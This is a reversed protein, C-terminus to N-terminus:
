AHPSNVLWSNVLKGNTSQFCWPNPSQFSPGEQSLDSGMPLWSGLHFLGGAVRLRLSRSFLTRIELEKEFEETVDMTRFKERKGGMFFLRQFNPLNQTWCHLNKYGKRTAGELGTFSQLKWTGSFLVQCSDNPLPQFARLTRNSPDSIGLSFGGNPM